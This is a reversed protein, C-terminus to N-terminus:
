CFLSSNLFKHFYANSAFKLGILFVISRTKSKSTRRSFDYLMVIIVYDATVVQMILAAIKGSACKVEKLKLTM